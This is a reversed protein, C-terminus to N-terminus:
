TVVAESRQLAARKALWNAAGIAPRDVFREYGVSLIISLIMLSVYASFAAPVYAMGFHMFVTVAWIGFSFILPWHLLYMSFSIRGFFAGVRGGFMEAAGISGLVGVVLLGSGIVYWIRLSDGHMRIADQVPPLVARLSDFFPIFSVCGLGIGLVVLALSIRHYRELSPRVWNLAAGVIFPAYYLSMGLYIAWALFAAVAIAKHKGFLYFSLFLALSGFLEIRMTWLPQNWALAAGNGIFPVGIAATYLAQKISPAQTYATQVWGAFSPDPIVQTHMAGTRMLVLAFLVSVGAPIMLRPYRKIAGRVLYNRDGTEFFKRTLVYGSLTFFVIVAFDGNYLINFPPWSFWREWDWAVIYASQNPDRVRALFPFLVYFFHCAVVSLCAIGRLGELALNKKM